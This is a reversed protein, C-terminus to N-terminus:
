LNKEQDPYRGVKSLVPEKKCVSLAPCCASPLPHSPCPVLHGQVDSNSPRFSAACSSFVSKWNDAGGYILHSINLHM